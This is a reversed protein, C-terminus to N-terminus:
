APLTFRATSRLNAIDPSPVATVMDHTTRRTYTWMGNHAADYEGAADVGVAACAARLQALSPRSM